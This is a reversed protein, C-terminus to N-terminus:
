APAAAVNRTLDWGALRAGARFASEYFGLVAGRPDPQLRADEYPLVALHGAGRTIWGASAPELREHILEAPEPATYSYFAPAPYVEDGFWFGFSVVERSYAERTVADVDPGLDVRRDSFRTVALDFSHWFLQVPSTKGTWRGAFAELVLDVRSLTRWFRTVAEPDYTAHETDEAFPRDADTLGYPYARAPRTRVGVADLGRFLEDTFGAVSQGPLSVSWRRGEVTSLDLRHDLFDFDITFIPEEGMPRTTLGRGTLHLTVNWWHNRHPAAALRIKGVLQAFRHVTEKTERWSDYPIAAWAASRAALTDETANM